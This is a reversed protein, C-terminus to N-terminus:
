RAQGPRETSLIQNLFLEGLTEWEVHEAFMCGISWIEDDEARQWRVTSPRTLEVGSKEDVLRLTITEGVKLPAAIRLRAGSRSLDLLEADIPGPQKGDGREVQVRPGESDTAQHRPRRAVYGGDHDTMM